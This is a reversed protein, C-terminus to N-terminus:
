NAQAMVKPLTLWTDLLTLTTCICTEFANEWEKM